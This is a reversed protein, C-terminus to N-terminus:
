RVDIIGKGKYKEIIIAINALFICSQGRMAPGTLGAILPYVFDSTSDTSTARGVKKRLCPM